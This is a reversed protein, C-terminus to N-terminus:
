YRGERGVLRYSHQIVPLTTSFSYSHQIVSLTTSFSYSHQIVSLTTSFSYAHQIVSLTTSFSYSHQIVSLINSIKECSKFRYNNLTICKIRNMITKINCATKQVNSNTIYCQITAIEKNFYIM